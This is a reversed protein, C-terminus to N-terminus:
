EYDVSALHFRWTGCLLRCGARRWWGETMVPGSRRPGRARQPSGPAMPLPTNDVICRLGNSRLRSEQGSGSMHARSLPRRPHSVCEPGKDRPANSLTESPPPPPPPPPLRSCAVLCLAATASCCVLQVISHSILFHGDSVKDSFFIESDIVPYISLHNLYLASSVQQTDKLGNSKLTLVCDINHRIVTLDVESLFLPSYM